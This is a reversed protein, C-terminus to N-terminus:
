LHTRLLEHNGENETRSAQVDIPRRLRIMRYRPPLGTSSVYSYTVNMGNDIPELFKNKVESQM